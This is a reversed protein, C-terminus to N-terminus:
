RGSSTPKNFLASNKGITKQVICDSVWYEADKRYKSGAFHELVYEYWFIAHDIMSANRLHHAHDIILKDMGEKKQTCEVYQRLCTDAKLVNHGKLHLKYLVGLADCRDKPNSQDHASSEMFAVAATTDGAKLLLKSRLKTLTTRNTGNSAYGPHHRLVTLADGFRDKSELICSFHEILDGEAAFSLGSTFMIDLLSDAAGKSISESVDDIEGDMALFNTLLKRKPLEPISDNTIVAITDKMVLAVQGGTLITKGSGNNYVTTVSGSNVAVTVVNDMRIVRFKTGTVVIDALGANVVFARRKKKAVSFSVAGKLVQVSVRKDEIQIDSVLAGSDVVARSGSDLDIINRQRNDNLIRSAPYNILDSVSSKGNNSVVTPTRSIDSEPQMKKVFVSISVVSLIILAAALYGIFAPKFRRVKGRLKTHSVVDSIIANWEQEKGNQESEVYTDMVTTVMEFWLEDNELGKVAPFNKGTETLISDFLIQKDLAQLEDNKLLQDSNGVAGYYEPIIKEYDAPPHKGNYKISM